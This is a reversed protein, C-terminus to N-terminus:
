KRPQGSNPTLALCGVRHHHKEDRERQAEPDRQGGPRRQARPEERPHEPAQDDRHERPRRQPHAARGGARAQGGVEDADGGTFAVKAIKPHSVLPEGTEAGFGTVVNFVGPPFGAAEVLKAFELTSCSTFESPKVVATNGAALAPALQLDSRQVAAFPRGAPIRTGPTGSFAGSIPLWISDIESTTVDDKNMQSKTLQLWAPHQESGGSRGGTEMMLNVDAVTKTADFSIGWAKLLKELNSSSGMSMGGMMPNRQSQSDVLSYPDLFAILKGGRLLFQDIAFQTKESAEKPHIVVLVKIEDDIKEATPDVRKVDFDNRLETIFTWPESGRQGTSKM